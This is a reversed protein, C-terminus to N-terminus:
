FYRANDRLHPPTQVKRQSVFRSVLKLTFRAAKKSPKSTNTPIRM